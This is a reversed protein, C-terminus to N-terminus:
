VFLPKNTAEHDVIDARIQASYEKPTLKSNKEAVKAVTQSLEAFKQYREEGGFLEIVEANTLSSQAIAREDLPERDQDSEDTFNSM